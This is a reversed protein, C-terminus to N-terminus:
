PNRNRENEDDSARKPKRQQKNNYVLWDIFLDSNKYLPDVGIKPIDHEIQPPSPQFAV